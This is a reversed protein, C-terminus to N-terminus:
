TRFVMLAAEPFFWRHPCLLTMLSVQGSLDTTQGCSGFRKGPPGLYLHLFHRGPGSVRCTQDLVLAPRHCRPRRHWRGVAPRPTREDAPAVQHKRRFLWGPSLSPSQGDRSRTRTGEVEAALSGRLTLQTRRCSVPSCGGQPDLYM